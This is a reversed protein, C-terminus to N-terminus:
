RPSFVPYVSNVAKKVAKARNEIISTYRHLKPDVSRVAFATASREEQNEGFDKSDFIERAAFNAAMKKAFGGGRESTWQEILLFARWEAESGLYRGSPKLWQANTVLPSGILDELAATIAKRHDHDRIHRPVAVLRYGEPCDIQHHIKSRDILYPLSGAGLFNAMPDQPDFARDVRFLAEFRSRFGLPLEPWSKSIDIQKENAFAFVALSNAREELSCELHLRHYHREEDDATQRISGFDVIFDENRRLCEWAKAPFGDKAPNYPASM